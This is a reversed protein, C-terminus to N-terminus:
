PFGPFGHNEWSIHPNGRELKERLGIWQNNTQLFMSFGWVNATALRQEVAGGGPGSHFEVPRLHVLDGQTTIMNIVKKFPSDAVLKNM